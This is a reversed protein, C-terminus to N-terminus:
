RRRQQRRRVPVPVRARRREMLLWGALLLLGGAAATGGTSSCGGRPGQQADMPLAAADSSPTQPAPAPASTGPTAPAPTVSTGPTAGSAKLELYRQILKERAGDFGAGDDPVRSATPILGRAIQRAYKADGADSLMKLWEYDQVGQRILKLRISAVPVPTAGGIRQPTGPYFLTGDGNGSFRYQTDWATDLMGVTQYYLEGTAGELWNLWQMSRVKAASRDLMYSPWGAGPKNEPTNTGYSCGHSMCSQYMWLMRRPQTLFADYTARQDGMYPAATGDMYNVLPVAIDILGELGHAKLDRESTTTLTRLAPAAQRVLQANKQLQEFTIGYPPEDGSYDYARELWGRERMHAQFDAYAEATLPGQYLATTMRAGPLLSPATGDMYPGWAADWASWDPLGTPTPTTVSLTIRHDLAMRQFRQLLTTELAKDGGCDEKGTFTRCVHPAWMLFSTAMSPTSPLEADVVTLRVPVQFRQADATVEVTGTYEGPPANQPVHVDVWLARAENAAVDFPFAGRAEGAVEDVEPVLADPWRGTPEGAVSATKTTIFDERFLAVDAGDIRAPGELAPLSARVGRLGADGGHLAVQFSAFENRAAILRVESATKPQAQPRVKETASESWVTPAAAAAPLTSLLALLGLTRTVSPM